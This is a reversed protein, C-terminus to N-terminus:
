LCKTCKLHWWWWWWWWPRAGSQLTATEVLQKWRGRDPRTAMSLEPWSQAASPRRGPDSALHSTSTRPPAELGQTARLNVYTFGQVPWRHAWPGFLSIVFIDHTM